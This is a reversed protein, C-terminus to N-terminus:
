FFEDLLTYFHIKRADPEIGIQEYLYGTWQEGFNHAVSRVLLAIDQFRDAVGASEWDVFGSSKNNEIIVNPVCYDGHTFVLVEDAPKTAVLEQFLDKPSRGQREEDFDSEDVLNNLMRKEALEIKYDLRADFPCDEVPLSHIMQLGKALQEITQPIDDKLLDSSADVGSIESLLLYDTNEDESFLLVEPVPLKNNLWDLKLKERLLSNVFSRPAIKLYCNQEPSKLHFVRSQSLGVYIERWGFGSVAQALDAPISQRLIDSNM